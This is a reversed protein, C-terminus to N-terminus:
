DDGILKNYDEQEQETLNEKQELYELYQNQEIELYHDELPDKMLKNDDYEIMDHDNGKDDHNEDIIDKIMEDDELNDEMKGNISDISFGYYGLNEIKRVITKFRGNSLKYGKKGIAIKIPDKPKNKKKIYRIKSDIMNPFNEIWNNLKDDDYKKQTNKSHTLKFVEILIERKDKHNYLINDYTKIVDYLYQTKYNLRNILDDNTIVEIEQIEPEEIDYITKTEELIDLDDFLTLNVINDYKPYQFPIESFEIRIVDNTLSKIYNRYERKNFEKIALLERNEIQNNWYNLVHNTNIPKINTLINSNYENLGNYWNYNNNEVKSM